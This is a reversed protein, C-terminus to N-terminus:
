LIEKLKQKIEQEFSQIDDFDNQIFIDSIEKVGASNLTAEDGAQHMEDQEEQLFQEYSKDDEASRNRSRIRNYRIKPDADVWILKGGLEHIRKAEGVNRMPTAVVGVYKDSQKKYLEVARDVLVGLGFERRWEASISRLIERELPLGRKEAEDRLLDSVSVFLYNNEALFKSVTDKGSGNTGGIGIVKM